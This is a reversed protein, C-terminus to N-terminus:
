GSLLRIGIVVLLLAFVRRLWALPLVHTLRAGLPAAAMSAPVLALVAPWYVYGSSWAPLGREDLGVVAYAVAGALAIPLGCAASTAIARRLDVRCWLLFPTTLTGGGIGVLASVLGILGGAGAVAPGALLGRGPPPRLALLLQLAVLLEFVAFVRRLVVSDLRDALGAGLAAGLVLGPALRAAVPWLVAGHRHHAASSVAATFVISALSTGVALQTLRAAEVGGAAFLWLLGPVIVLGGGIGLLGALLGAVGGLLLYGAIEPGSM